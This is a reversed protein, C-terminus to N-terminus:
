ICAWEGSSRRLRCAMGWGRRRARSSDTVLARPASRGSAAQAIPNATPLQLTIANGHQRPPPFSPLPTAGPHTCTFALAALGLLSLKPPGSLPSSTHSTDNPHTWTTWWENVESLPLGDSPGRNPNQHTQPSYEWHWAKEVCLVLFHASRVFVCLPTISTNYLLFSSDCNNFSKLRSFRYYTSYPFVPSLNWVASDTTPAKHSSLSLNWCPSHITPVKHSSLLFSKLVNFRHYTIHRGCIPSVSMKINTFLNLTTYCYCHFPYYYM